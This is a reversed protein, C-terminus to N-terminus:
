ESGYQSVLDNRIFVFEYYKISPLPPLFIEVLTFDAFRSDGLLNDIFIQNGGGLTRDVKIPSYSAIVFVGPSAQFIYDIILDNTLNTHALYEDNLGGVDLSPLGSYYPVAGSDIITVLKEGPPIVRALKHGLAIGESQELEWSEQAVLLESSYAPFFNVVLPLISGTLAIITVFLRGKWNIKFSGLLENLFICTLLLLMPYYPALFRHSFNMTLNSRTYQFMIVALPIVGTAILLGSKDLNTKQLNHSKITIRYVLLIMGLVVLFILTMTFSNSLFFVRIADWSGPVWGGASKVYFPNPFPYGYYTWRWIFFIILPLIFLPIVTLLYRAPIKKEPWWTACATAVAISLAFLAGEPRTLSLLLLIISFQRYHTISSTIVKQFLVFAWALLFAFLITEMGSFIHSYFFPALCYMLVM